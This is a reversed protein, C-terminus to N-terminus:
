ITVEHVPEGTAAERLDVEAVAGAARVDALVEALAALQPAPATV